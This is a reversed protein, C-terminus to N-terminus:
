KKAETGIKKQRHKHIYTDKQICKYKSKYTQKSTHSQKYTYSHTQTNQAHTHAHTHMLTTKHINVTGINTHITKIQM